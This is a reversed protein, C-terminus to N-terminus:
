RLAKWFVVKDDGEGYYGPVQGVKKYGRGEYFRRARETAGTSSTSILLMSAGGAKAVAEADGLLLSGCGRGEAGPRVGIWWLEWVHPPGSPDASLYTWGAPRGDSGDVVRAALSTPVETGALVKDLSGGLLEAAEEASFLGTSMGLEVLVDKEGATADRPSSFLPSPTSDAM